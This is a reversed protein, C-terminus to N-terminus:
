RTPSNLVSGTRRRVRVRGGPSGGPLADARGNRVAIELRGSSGVLACARGPAVDSYSRVLPLVEAGVCVELGEFGGGGLADLDGELLNTTLNGFRDARLVAGEWGAETRTKAPGDIRVPDGVPPGVEELALGRALHGAAPGFVDRGHFVPSVPERFLRASALLHVRAGPHAELVHTFLGNDPGVFLWRGARLAIPRRATGVGPDVVAVFVTGAPFYRYAADLTLAGGAVDHAPVEHTVDVLTAEPCATLIAGKMAGVYHDQLGFDTLLAIIPAM